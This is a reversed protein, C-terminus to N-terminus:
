EEDDGQLRLTEVRASLYNAFASANSKRFVADAGLERCRHEIAPTAFESLIVITGTPHQDRLRRILNFGSGEQLVLDITAIDWDQKHQLLWETAEEESRLTARVRSGEISGALDTLAAQMHPSDEVVLIRVQRDATAIL